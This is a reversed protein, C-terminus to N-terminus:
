KSEIGRELYHRIEKYRGNEDAINKMAELRRENSFVRHVFDLEWKYSEQSNDRGKYENLFDINEPKFKELIAEDLTNPYLMETHYLTYYVDKQRGLTRCIDLLREWDIERYKSSILFHIDMFKYLTLDNGSVIKFIMTAERYHHICLFTLFYELSLTRINYKINNLVITNELMISASEQADDNSLRFNIDIEHFPLYREDVPKNFPVIEYTNLRSFLIEKKTAPHLKGERVEGQVYGLNQLVKTVKDIDAADVMMDTDNSIRDGNKYFITNLVAGKLFAYKINENEFVEAIKKIEDQHIKTREQQEFYAIQLFYKVYKPINAIDKINRYVVGNVRNLMACGLFASWDMDYRRVLENMYSIEKEQLEYRSALLVLQEYVRYKRIKEIVDNGLM